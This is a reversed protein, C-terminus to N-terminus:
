AEPTKDLLAEYNEKRLLHSLINKIPQLAIVNHSRNKFSFNNDLRKLLRFSISISYWEGNLNTTGRADPKPM